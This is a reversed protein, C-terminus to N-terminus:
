KKKNYKKYMEQMMEPNMVTYVRTSEISSHGMMDSIVSNNSGQMALNRGFHHRFSHPNATFGIHAEKSIRKLVSEVAHDTWRGGCKFTGYASIWLYGEIDTFKKDKLFFERAAIYDKLYRNTEKTWFAMRVPKAGRSKETNIITRMNRLDVDKIKISLFENLRLGTDWLMRVATINRLRLINKPHNELVDLLKQFNDKDLVKPMKFEVVPVPIINPDLVKLGEGRWYKFFQKWANCKPIFGNNEWGMKRMLDMYEIIHHIRVEKIECDKLHVCLLRIHTYYTSMSSQKNKYKGWAIYKILAESLKM